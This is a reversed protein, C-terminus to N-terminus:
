CKDPRTARPKTSGSIAHFFTVNMPKTGITRSGSPLAFGMGPQALDHLIFTASSADFQATLNRLVDPWLSEDVAADYISGILASLSAVNTM